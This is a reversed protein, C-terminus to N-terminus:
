RKYAALASSVDSQDQQKLDEDKVNAEKLLLEETGQSDTRIILVALYFCIRYISRCPADVKSCSTNVRTNFGRM